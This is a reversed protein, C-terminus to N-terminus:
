ISFVLRDILKETSALAHFLIQRVSSTLGKIQTKNVKFVQFIVCELHGILKFYLAWVSFKGARINHYQDVTDRQHDNFTLFGTHIHHFTDVLIDAVPAFIVDRVEETVGLQHQSHIRVFNQITSATSRCLVKYGPM